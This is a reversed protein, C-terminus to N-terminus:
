PYRSVGNSVNAAVNGTGTLLGGRIDLTTGALKGGALETVGATQVYTFSSFDLLGSMSRVTAANTVSYQFVSSGSGTSKRLTGSNRFVATGGQFSSSVRTARVRREGQLRM